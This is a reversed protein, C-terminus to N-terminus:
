YIVSGIVLRKGLVDSAGNLTSKWFRYSVVCPAESAGEVDEADSFTRGLIPRVGLVPFFSASALTASITRAEAGRGLSRGMSIWAAVGSVSSAQTTMAGYDLGTLGDTFYPGRDDINRQVLRVVRDPDAVGPPPRLFFHDALGLVPIGLGVALGLSLVVGAAFRWGRRLSRLAYTWDRMM